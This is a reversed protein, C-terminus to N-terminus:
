VCCVVVRGDGGRRGSHFTSHIISLLSPSSPPQLFDTACTPTTANLAAEQSCIMPPGGLKASKCATLDIGWGLQIQLGTAYVSSGGVMTVTGGLVCLVKGAMFPYSSFLTYVINNVGTFVANGAM